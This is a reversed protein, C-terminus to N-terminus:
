RRTNTEDDDDDTDRQFAIYRGASTRGIRVCWGADALASALTAVKASLGQGIPIWQRPAAEDALEDHLETATGVWGSSHLCELWLVILEALQHLERERVRAYPHLM